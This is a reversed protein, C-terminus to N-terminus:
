RAVVPLARLARGVITPHWSLESEDVALRLDPFRQVIALVAIQAELRALQAGLCHHLGWGFSVHRNPQRTIDFDQPSDFVTPDHNAAATACFVLDGEKITIGPEWEVDTRARRIFCKSPGDYRLMEEVAPVILNPAALLKAQQDPHRLLALVGSAILNTTTEHGGFLLMTAAGVMQHEDLGDSDSSIAALRSLLNDAPSRRYQALLHGFLQEFNDAAQLARDWIDDRSVKGMVLPGLMRSWEKFEEAREVPVGLLIAIVTAPLTYAVTALLDFPEDVDVDDLLRSTLSTVDDRLKAVARPTFVSRVPDRLATHRPPDNFIMWSRLLEGASAFRELDPSSMGRQLDDVKTTSFHEHSLGNRVDEYRTLIWARHTESWHVPSQSRLRGFFAYPDRVADPAVISDPIDARTM